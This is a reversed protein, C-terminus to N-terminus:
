INLYCYKIMEMFAEMRTIDQEPMEKELGTELLLVPAGM